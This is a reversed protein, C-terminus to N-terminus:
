AGWSRWIRTRGTLIQGSLSTPCPRSSRQRSIRRIPLQGCTLFLLRTSTGYPKGTSVMSSLISSSRTLLSGSIKPHSSDPQLTLIDLAHFVHPLVSRRILDEAERSLHVDDPFALHNQWDIIKKYTEHTTQSCFPPYGVLCEFMIAGLSWWDCENGYGQLLFIEPAIYDPTGVTSYAQFLCFTLLYVYQFTVNPARAKKPQSEM